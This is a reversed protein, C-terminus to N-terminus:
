GRYFIREDTSVIDSIAMKISEEAIKAGNLIRFGKKIDGKIGKPVGSKEIDEKLLNNVFKTASNFRRKELSYLKRDSGIWLLNTKQANKLIFKEVDSKFFYDPGDKVCYDSITRSQLFFLLYSTQNVEDVFVGHRLVSFGEKGLQTSLSNAARKSQGWIIDPSRASFKFKIIMTNKLNNQPVTLAKKSKFFDPSPSKIFSRCLLIFKGINEDSIAAALNRSSDIPDMIVIPTDFKKTSKGIVYNHKVTSFTEVVQEFSKFYWVLVETVYGSFGQKAIEAGYLKNSKLFLKLLRVEEKMQPTFNEVIFKTHFPSRDAASKWSGKKVDYCPVVNVITTEVVAEVYPHDSYRVYPKYRKMAGYGVSKSIDVFAQESVSSDFKIFIDIDAKNRMWTGKAYSGGFEVGKIEPYKKSEDRVLKIVKKAVTDKKAVSSKPPIVKDRTTSIIQKM